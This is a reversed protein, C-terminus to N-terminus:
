ASEIILIDSVNIAEVVDLEGVADDEVAIVSPDPL